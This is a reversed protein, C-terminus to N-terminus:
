KLPMLEDNSARNQSPTLTPTKNVYFYWGIGLILAAIIWFLTPIKM